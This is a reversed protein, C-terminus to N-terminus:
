VPLDKKGLSAVLVSRVSNFDRRGLSVRYMYQQYYWHCRIEISPRMDYEGLIALTDHCDFLLSATMSGFGNVSGDLM